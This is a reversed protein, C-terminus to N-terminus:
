AAQKRRRAAALGMLGIGLLALAGPEPVQGPGGGQCIPDSPNLDCFNQVTEKVKTTTFNTFFAQPDARFDVINFFKGGNAPALNRYYNLDDDNPNGIINILEKTDTGALATNLAARNTSVDDNEDTVLIFNRVSNARFTAGLAIQIALSGDETGGGSASTKSFPNGATNFTTFDVIDQFLSATGSTSGNGSNGGFEVLGYHADIGANIMATNFSVINTKVQAIDGGMSGSTDVVWVIDTLIVAQAPAGFGILGSALASALALKKLKLKM